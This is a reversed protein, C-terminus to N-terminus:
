ENFTQIIFVTFGKLLSQIKEKTFFHVIFGDNEYMDEGRHIGRKYDGDSFNRATYINIGGPILIRKIEKNLNKIHNYMAIQSGLGDGDPNEHTTLLIRNSEQILEHIQDKYIQLNKGNEM